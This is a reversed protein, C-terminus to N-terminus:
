APTKGAAGIAALVEVAVRDFVGEGVAGLGQHGPAVSWIAVVVEGGVNVSRLAGGLKGAIDMGGSGPEVLILAGLLGVEGPPCRLFGDVGPLGLPIYEEAGDPVVLRVVFGAAGGQRVEAGDHAAGRDM